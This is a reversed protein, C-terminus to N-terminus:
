FKKERKKIFFEYVAIVSAIIGLITYISNTSPIVLQILMNMLGSLTYLLLLVLLSRAPLSLSRFWKWIGRAICDVHYRLPMEPSNEASVEKQLFLSDTDQGIAESTDPVPLRADKSIIKKHLLASRSRAPKKGYYGHM